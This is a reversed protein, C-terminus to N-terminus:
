SKINIKNRRNEHRGGEFDTTLFAKVMDRAVEDTVFRAPICLINADNHLRSLSAIEETWSLAARVNEHKNASMCVGNGSGCLLIGKTFTGESVAQAVPHAFDPYDISDTSYSGVDKVTYGMAELVPLLFSKREFGAHDSGIIINMDSM